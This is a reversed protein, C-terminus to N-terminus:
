TYPIITLQVLSNRTHRIAKDHSSLNNPMSVIACFNAQASMRNIM